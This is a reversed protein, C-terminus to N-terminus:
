RGKGSAIVRDREMTKVVVDIFSLILPVNQEAMWTESAATWILKETKLDYLNTQVVAFEDQVVYGPSFAYYGHWGGRYAAPYSPGPAGLMPNLETKKDMLRSILVADAGQESMKAAIAEKSLDTQDGLVPYSAVAGTGRAQMQKVMEDEFVRRDAPSKMLAIIMIKTPRDQYAPDKWVTTLKTTACSPLLLLGLAFTSLFCRSLSRIM